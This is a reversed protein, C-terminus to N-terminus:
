FPLDDEDVNSQQPPRKPKAKAPREDDAAPADSRGAAKDGGLFLVENAVVETSYKEVGNKDTYKRTQMRGNIFVQRGKKLFQGANEATKGFVVVSVWETVDKYETGEKVRQSIALRLNCVATGSQTFRVEPDQGLNGVLHVSNLGNSM